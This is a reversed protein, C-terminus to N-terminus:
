SDHSLMRLILNMASNVELRQGDLSNGHQTQGINLVTPGTVMQGAIGLDDSLM